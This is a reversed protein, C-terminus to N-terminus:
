VGVGYIRLVSALFELLFGSLSGVVCVPLDIM